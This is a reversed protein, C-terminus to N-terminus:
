IFVKNIYLEELAPALIKKAEKYDIDNEKCLQKLIKGISQKKDIRKFLEFILQNIERYIVDDAEFDYYIVLFNDRKEQIKKNIIDYKFAKFKASKSVKYRNEYSFKGKKYTKYEKMFLEIEIWDYYMLEYLYKRNEFAKTKKVFKKFDKPIKWIFPTSPTNKMFKNILKDLTIQNINKILLPYSNRIAEEYRTFVLKQYVEINTTEYGKEQKLLINFFRNQIDKELSNNKPM